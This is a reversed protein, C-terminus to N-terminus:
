TVTQSFTCQAVNEEECEEWLIGNIWTWAQHVPEARIEFNFELIQKIVVGHRLIDVVTICLGRPLGACVETEWIKLLLVYLFTQLFSVFRRGGKGRKRGTPLHTEPGQWLRQAPSLPWHQRPNVQQRWGHGDGHQISGLGPHVARRSVAHHLDPALGVGFYQHTSICCVRPTM